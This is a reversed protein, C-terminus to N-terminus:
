PISLSRFSLSLSTPNVEVTSATSVDAFVLGLLLLFFSELHPLFDFLLERSGDCSLGREHDLGSKDRREM